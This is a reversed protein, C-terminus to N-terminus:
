VKREDTQASEYTGGFFGLINYGHKQAYEMCYKKQTALSQNTLSQERSSVRTYIVANLSSRKSKIEGKGFQQFIKLNDM